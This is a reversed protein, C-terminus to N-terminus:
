RIQSAQFLSRSSASYVPLDTTKCAREAQVLRALVQSIAESDWQQCHRTFRQLEKFFVPPRLQKIAEDLTMGGSVQSRIFYLRNFYLQLSRIYAVSSTKEQLALQLERDLSKVDRDALTAAIDDLQAERNYDVLERAQEIGLSNGRGIYLCIKGLENRTVRRDNGLQHSLYTLTENDTRISEASLVQFIVQKLSREDDHYCALAAANPAKEFWSRLSSRPSLEGAAILLFAGKHWYEVSDEVASALTDGGDRIFILRKPALMHVTRLEDALLGGDELLREAEIEFFAFDERDKGLVAREISKCYEQVLGDDPGYVLCAQCQRDPYALFDAAAKANLKM